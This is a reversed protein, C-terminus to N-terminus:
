SQSQALAEFNEWLEPSGAQARAKLAAPGVRDWAGSVWVWDLVLDRDMLDNKVLTGVTEFFTLFTQVPPDLADASERDFDEAFVTRGAESLGLMSGWKALEVMLTADERSGAM